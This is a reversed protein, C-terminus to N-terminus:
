IMWVVLVGVCVDGLGVGEVFWCGIRENEEFFGYILMNIIYIM